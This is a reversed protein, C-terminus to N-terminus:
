VYVQREEVRLEREGYRLTEARSAAIRAFHRWGADGRDRLINSIAKYKLYERDCPTTETKYSLEDFPRLCELYVPGLGTLATFELRLPHIDRASHLFDLGVTAVMESSLAVYADDAEATYGQRQYLLNLVKSEGLLWDPADYARRRDSQVIVHPSVYFGSDVVTDALFQLYAQECNDPMNEIFRVQTWADDNLGTVTEIAASNSVDYLIVRMDGKTVSVPLVVLLNEDEHVNFATSRAGDTAAAATDIHLARPGFLVNAATTVFERTDPTGVAPWKTLDNEGMDSDDVLSPAWLHPADTSRLVRNIARLLTEPTLGKPFVLYDMGSPAAIPFAPSVTLQDTENFGKDDVGVVYGQFVFTIATANAHLAATTGAYGRTVVINTADTVTTVLVKESELLLVYGVLILTTSSVTLTTVAAAHEGTLTVATSFAASTDEIIEILRSDFRNAQGTGRGLVRDKLTTTTGAATTRSPIPLRDVGSDEQALIALIDKEVEVLQTNPM